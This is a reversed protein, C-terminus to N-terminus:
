RATRRKWAPGAALAAGLILAAAYAAPTYILTNAALGNVLLGIALALACAAANGVDGSSRQRMLRRLLMVLGVILLAAGLVGTEVLYRVYESHPLRSTFSNGSEESVKTGLGQGFVPAKEWEPILAEWREFRWTLSSGEGAGGAVAASTSESHIRESGLPTALFIAVLLGVFFVVAVKLRRTGSRMVGFSAFMVLLGIFGALSFTVITAAVFLVTFLLDLRKRGHDLFRWLSVLAAIAFFVAASNPHSFTGFAREFGGVTTGTHTACQYLALLASYAGAVQVLRAAVPLRLSGRSSYAIFGVAAISLERVGERLVVTSFGEYGAAVVTWAALWAAILAATALSERRRILLGTALLILVVAIVGSLNLSSSYRSAESSLDDVLVRTLLLAGVAPVLPVDVAAAVLLFALIPAAFVISHSIAAGQLVLAGCLVLLWLVARPNAELRRRPLAISDLSAPMM